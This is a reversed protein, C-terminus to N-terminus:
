EGELIEKIKKLKEKSIKNFDIEQLEEALQEQEEDVEHGMCMGREDVNDCPPIVEYGKSKAEEVAKKVERLTAPRETGNETVTMYKYHKIAGEFTSCVHYRKSM